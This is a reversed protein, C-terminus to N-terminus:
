ASKSYEALRLPPEVRVSFYLRNEGGEVVTKHETRTKPYDVGQESEVVLVAGNALGAELQRIRSELDKLATREVDDQVYGEM